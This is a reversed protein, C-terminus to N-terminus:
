SKSVVLIDQASSNLWWRGYLIQKISFGESMLWAELLSQEYGIGDEYSNPNLTWFEGMNHFQRQGNSMFQLAEHNILYATFFCVGGDKLVRNIEHLYNKLDLPLMHTFVSTLFVFDFQNSLYPFQYDCAQYQGKPNYTKNYLDSWSFHFNPYKPTITSQCWEIGSRVIDFGEYSGKPLVQTLPIAIRGIGCGVELVNDTHRLGGLNELYRVIALGVEKFNEMNTGSGVYYALESSPLLSEDYRM